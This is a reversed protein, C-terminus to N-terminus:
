MYGTSAKIAINLLNFTTAGRWLRHPMPADFSEAEAQAKATTLELAAMAANQSTSKISVVSAAAYKQRDQTKIQPSLRELCHDLTNEKERLYM